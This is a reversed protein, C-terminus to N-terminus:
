HWTGSSSRRCARRHRRRRHAGGRTGGLLALVVAEVLFQTRIDGGRAGIAMRIGIERTRETVSVLMINMVGIGGVVLSIAAVVVLLTTLLGYIRRRCRRSSRRRASRSTPSADTRSTTASASSARRDAEGRARDDGALERLGDARRRLGPPTQMVRARFSAIPMLVVDDQDGGFPAEGKTALVGLVRYPYRGIRVTRGVPDETGFLNKRSADRRPRRGQVQRGRRARGLRRRARGDLQPGPLVALTTGVVNTTWNQDGYVIQASRGCSRRSPSSAPRSACSRARRRGRDPARRQGPAGRAGSAQAARRSSSSSTRASRSSRSRRRERARRRRARHGHRRRRRRHPHRAGHALRAAPQAVIARLALRIGDLLARM